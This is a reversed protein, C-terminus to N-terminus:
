GMLHYIEWYYEERSTGSQTVAFNGAVSMMGQAIYWDEIGIGSQDHFTRDYAGLNEPNYSPNATVAEFGVGWWYDEDWYTSNSGGIYGIAGKLSARLVEEGFCTTQFELSSCCNGVMLPYKHANTLGSVDSIVFSPDAWGSPSCHATYNAFSVGDSINQKILQSYNGGGPEPQLYTHSYLGHEENFYYETGYNIQGNGWTQSHSADSGSVMVVEDLFSPDPFTYQEYELTKDIQPQLQNLDNASFRGYYAEPFLDNTYECYYLDTVHYGANGDFAPIQDVDGVFLVFSQPNYGEPPDNYFDELYNKISTTTSGVNPDDTYAEVVKYGKRTKWEVFPQLADAFMPDSVIIYTIPAYEILEDTSEIEKYNFLMKSISKFYPNLHSEKLSITEAMNGGTFTISVELNEYVRITNQVPNYQVPAIEVRAIRLGRMIGLPEVNVLDDGLMGDIAYVDKNYEFPVDEPNDSKSLSPQAPFVPDAIGFDALNYDKYSQYTINVEFDANLPVEILKKIVPLKPEGINNSYGYGDIRLQSFNGEDSKVTFAKITSVTNKLSLDSYTNETIKIKTTGDNLQLTQANAWSFSLLFGAALLVTLFKAKGTFNKM